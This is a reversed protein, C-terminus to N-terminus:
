SLYTLNWCYGFEFFQETYCKHDISFVNFLKYLYTYVTYMTGSYLICYHFANFSHKFVHINAFIFLDYTSCKNISFVLMPIYQTYENYATHENYVSHNGLITGFICQKVKTPPQSNFKNRFTTCCVLPFCDVIKYSHCSILVNLSLGIFPRLMCWDGKLPVYGPILIYDAYVELSPFLVKTLYMDIILICPLM